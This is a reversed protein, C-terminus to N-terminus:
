HVSNPINWSHTLTIHFGIFGYNVFGNVVVKRHTKHIMETGISSGIVKFWCARAKTTLECCLRNLCFGLFLSSRRGFLLNFFQVSSSLSWICFCSQSHCQAMAGIIELWRKRLRVADIRALVNTLIMCKERTMLQGDCVVKWSSGAKRFLKLCPPFHCM